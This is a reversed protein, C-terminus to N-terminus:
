VAARDRVGASEGPSVPNLYRAEGESYGDSSLALLLLVPLVADEAPVIARPKCQPRPISQPPRTPQGFAGEKHNYPNTLAVPLVQTIVNLGRLSGPKICEEDLGYRTEVGDVTQAVRNGV